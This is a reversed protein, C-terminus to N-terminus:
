EEFYELVAALETVFYWEDADTLDQANDKALRLRVVEEM